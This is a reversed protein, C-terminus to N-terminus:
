VSGCCFMGCPPAARSSPADYVLERIAGDLWAEDPTYMRVHYADRGDTLWADAVQGLVPHVRQIILPLTEDDANTAVVPGLYEVALGAPFRPSVARVTEGEDTVVTSLAYAKPYRFSFGYVPHTYTTFDDPELSLVDDLFAKVDPAAPTALASSDTKPLGLALGAVLALAIVVVLLIYRRPFSSM